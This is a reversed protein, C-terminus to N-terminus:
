PAFHEKRVAQNPAFLPQLLSDTRRRPRRLRRRCCAPLAQPTTDIDRKAHTAPPRRHQPQQQPFTDTDCDCLSLCNRSQRLVLRIVCPSPAPSFTRIHHHHHHSSSPKKKRERTGLQPLLPPAPSISAPASPFSAPLSPRHHGPRVKRSIASNASDIGNPTQPSFESFPPLINYFSLFVRFLFPQSQSTAKRRHTSTSTSSQEFNNTTRERVFKRRQEAEERNWCESERHRIGFTEVCVCDRKTSWCTRGAKGSQPLRTWNDKQGRASRDVSRRALSDRGPKRIGVRFSATQKESEAESVLHGCIM